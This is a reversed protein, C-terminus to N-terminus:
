PPGPHYFKENRVAEQKLEAVHKFGEQMRIQQARTAHAKEEETLGKPTPPTMQMARMKAAEAKEKSIRPPPLVKKGPKLPLLEEPTEAQPLNIASSKTTAPAAPAAPAAAAAPASAAPAASAPKAGSQGAQPASLAAGGSLLLTLATLAVTWKMICIRTIILHQEYKLFRHDSQTWDWSCGLVIKPLYILHKMDPLLLNKAATMLM